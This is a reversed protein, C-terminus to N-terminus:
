DIYYRFVEPRDVRVIQLVEHVPDGRNDYVQVRSTLVHVKENMELFETEKKGADIIGVENLGRRAPCVHYKEQLLEYMSGSLDEDKLSEFSPHLYNTEFVVPLGDVKRVREICLVRSGDAINFFRCQQRTATVMETRVVKAITAKGQMKCLRSFSSVSKKKEFELVQSVYTGKGQLKILYNNKVLEEIAKRVTVRSVNFSKQLSVESPIKDGPKLKGSKIRKEIADRIQVYLPSNENEFFVDAM